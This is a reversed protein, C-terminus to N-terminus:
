LLPPKSHSISIQKVKKYEVRPQKKRINRKAKEQYIRKAKEQYKKKMNLKQLSVRQREGKITSQVLTLILLRQTLPSWFLFAYFKIQVTGRSLTSMRAM